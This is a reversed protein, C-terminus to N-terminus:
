CNLRISGFKLSLLTRKGVAKMRERVYRIEIFPIELSNPHYYM